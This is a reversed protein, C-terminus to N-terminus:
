YFVNKFTKSKFGTQPRETHLKVTDVQTRRTSWSGGVNWELSMWPNLQCSHNKRRLTNDRHNVATNLIADQGKGEDWQLPYASSFPHM